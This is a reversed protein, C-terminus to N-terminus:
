VKENENEKFFSEETCIRGGGIVLEGDYFAATQGSTVARQPEDFLLECGHEHPILLADSFKTTYRLKAQVRIPGAPREFPIYNVETVFVRKSYLQEEAGLIVDAGRKGLVYAREGFAIGLGRRQGTTYAEMGKHPAIIKGDSTIYNGKQPKLGHATLYGMYDGDPVFCIDQSDHKKALELGERALMQRIENKDRVEALPFVTHALQHQSLMCLMYTQDKARDDAASLLFRGDKETIRAYHGTAIGDYGLALAKELLLGFKMTRNCVVCPNPTGGAQYTKTFPLIVNKHFEQQLDFLYFPIGIQQAARRADEAEKEGGDRLLMTAGCVECGQRKLLLCAGASDVGGSMAVMIRKM